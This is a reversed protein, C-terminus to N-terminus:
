LVKVPSPVITARTAARPGPELVHALPPTIIRSPTSGPEVCAKMGMVPPPPLPALKWRRSTALAAESFVSALLATAGGYQSFISRM